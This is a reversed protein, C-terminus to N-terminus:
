RPCVSGDPARIADIARGSGGGSWEITGLGGTNDWTIYSATRLTNLQAPTPRLEFGTLGRATRVKALTLRATRRRGKDYVSLQVGGAISFGMGSPARRDYEEVTPYLDDGVVAGYALKPIGSDCRVWLAHTGSTNDLVYAQSGRNMMRWPTQRTEAMQGAAGGSMQASVTPPAALSVAVILAAFSIRNKM